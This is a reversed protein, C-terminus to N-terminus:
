KPFVGMKVLIKPIPQFWWSADVKKCRFGLHTFIVFSQVQTQFLKPTIVEM